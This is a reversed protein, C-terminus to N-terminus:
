LFKDKSLFEMIKQTIEGPGNSIKMNDLKTIAIASDGGLLMVEESSYAEDLSINERGAYKLEGNEVLKQCFHLVRKVTTGELIHDSLPTFFRNQSIIAINAIASEALYSNEDLSIGM